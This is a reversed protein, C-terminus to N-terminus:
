IIGGRLTGLQVRAIKGSQTYPFADVEIWEKPWKYTPLRKALEGEIDAENLQCEHHCIVFAVVMEGWYEDAVGCVAVENVAAHQSIAQEVEEPYINLGGSIIMNQKRGKLIVHGEENRLALDGVTVWDGAFVNATEEPRNLYGDFVWPSKVYLTGVEGQPVGEGTDSLIGVEVKPFMHGIAGEPIAQDNVHRFSVFSLESAGFFEYIAAHPFVRTAEQKSSPAWKAGSSILTHLSTRVPQSSLTHLAEFMTPVIYMVTIGKHQLLEWVKEKEFTSCLHLTAGIHLSQLAAYLFHSHVLPGPCLIRDTESLAFVDRSLPFCDAWSAHHRIFGKPDGTTGSTYGIYFPDQDHLVPSGEEAEPLSDLEQISIVQSVEAAEVRAFYAEDYVILDPECDQVVRRLQEKPWKSDFPIAIGGNLSIAMFMELWCADNPLLFGVKGGKGELLRSLKRQLLQIAHHFASYTLSGQENEIAIREPHRAAIESLGQGICAM